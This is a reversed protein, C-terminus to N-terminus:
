EGITIFKFKQIIKKILIQMFNIIWSLQSDVAVKKGQLIPFHLMTCAPHMIKMGNKMELIYPLVREKRQGSYLLMQYSILVSFDLMFRVEFHIWAYKELKLVRFDEFTIEPM